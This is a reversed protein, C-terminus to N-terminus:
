ASIEQAYVDRRLEALDPYPSDLAFQLAEDIERDIAAEMAALDAESAHGQAILTARLAPVPDRAMYDKKEAKDMYNDADGFIHGFFRYTMAEILTPGEGARARDIAQGAAAWMAVPDNGDVHV